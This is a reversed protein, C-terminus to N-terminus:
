ISIQKPTGLLLSTNVAVQLKNATAMTKTNKDVCSQRSHDIDQLALCSRLECGTMTALTKFERDQLRTNNSKVAQQKSAWMGYLSLMALLCTHTMM